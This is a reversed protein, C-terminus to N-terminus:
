TKVHLTKPLLKYWPDERRGGGNGGPEGEGVWGGERGGWGGERGRWGGEILALLM